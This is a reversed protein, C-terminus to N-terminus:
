SDKRFHQIINVNGTQPPPKTGPLFIHFFAEECLLTDLEIESPAVNYYIMKCGQGGVFVLDIVPASIFHM